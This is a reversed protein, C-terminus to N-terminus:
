EARLVTNVRGYQDFYLRVKMGPILDKFVSADSVRLKESVYGYVSRNASSDVHQMVFINRYSRPVSEGDPTFSGEQHGLYVYIGNTLQDSNFDFYM